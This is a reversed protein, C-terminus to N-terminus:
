PFTFVAIEFGMAGAHVQFDGFIKQGALPSHCDNAAWARARVGSLRQAARHPNQCQDDHLLRVAEAWFRPVIM